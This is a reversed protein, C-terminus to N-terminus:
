IKRLHKNRKRKHLTLLVWGVKVVGNSAVTINLEKVRVDSQVNGTMNVGGGELRNVMVVNRLVSQGARGLSGRPNVQITAIYLM